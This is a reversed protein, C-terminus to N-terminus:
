ATTEAVRGPGYQAPSGLTLWALYPTATIGTDPAMSEHGVVVDEGGDIDWATEGVGKDEVDTIAALDHAIEEIGPPVGHSEPQARHWAITELASPSRQALRVSTCRHRPAIPNDIASANRLGIRGATDYYYYHAHWSICKM